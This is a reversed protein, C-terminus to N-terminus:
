ARINGIASKATEHKAKLVNSVTSFKRNEQQVEEQLSLLQLNFEQAQEQMAKVETLTSNESTNGGLPLGSAQAAPLSDGVASALGQGRVAASVIPGGLVTAGVAVGRLAVQSATRLATSFSSPEERPTKRTRTEEIRVEPRVLPNPSRHIPPMSM